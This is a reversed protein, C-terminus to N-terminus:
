VGLGRRFREELEEHRRRDIAGIRLWEMVLARWDGDEGARGQGMGQMLRKVQYERRLAEDEAPTAQEKLIEARVCLMRLERERALADANAVAALNTLRQKAAAAGGAPWAPVAAIFEEAARRLAEGEGTETGRLLACEAERIKQGAEFLDAYAQKADAEKQQQVRLRCSDIAREFRAKLSRAETRPLEGVAEFAAQWEAVRGAEKFLESGSLQAAREAAECLAAAAIQHAALGARFEDEAQQKKQFVADCAARFEAWLAQETDRPAFGVDKWLAQLRKVAEAAERGDAQGAVLQARRILSQKEAV